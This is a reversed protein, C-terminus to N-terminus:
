NLVILSNACWFDFCACNLIGQTFMPDSDDNILHVLSVFFLYKCLLVIRYCAMATYFKIYNLLMYASAKKLGKLFCHLERQRKEKYMQLLLRSSERCIKFKLQRKYGWSKLYKNSSKWVIMVTYWARYYWCKYSFAGTLFIKAVVYFAM